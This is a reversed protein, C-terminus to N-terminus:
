LAFLQVNESRLHSVLVAELVGTMTTGKGTKKNMLPDANREVSKKDKNAQRITNNNATHTTTASVECLRGLETLM